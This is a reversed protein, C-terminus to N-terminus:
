DNSMTSLSNTCTEIKNEDRGGKAILTGQHHKPNPGRPSLRKVDYKIAHRMRERIIKRATEMM